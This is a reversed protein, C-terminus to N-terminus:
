EKDRSSLSLTMCRPNAHPQVVVVFLTSRIMFLSAGEERRRRSQQCLDVSRWRRNRRGPYIIVIVIFLSIDNIVIAVAAGPTFTLASVVENLKSKSAFVSIDKVAENQGHCSFGNSGM